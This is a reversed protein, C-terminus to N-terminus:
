VFFSHELLCLFSKIRLLGVDSKWVRLFVINKHRLFEVRVPGSPKLLSILKPTYYHDPTAIGM